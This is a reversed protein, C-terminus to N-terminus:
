HKAHAHAKHQQHTLVAKVEALAIVPVFRCFLLFMTM